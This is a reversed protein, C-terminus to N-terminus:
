KRATRKAERVSRSRVPKGADAPPKAAPVPNSAPGFGAASLARQGSESLLLEVFARAPGPRASTQVVGAGQLIPAHLSDPLLVGGRDKVLPWAVVAADANGSEAFQLAQRVNEAYVFKPHLAADLAQRAAVGYPAHAPNAIAISRVEPRALDALSRWAGSKSWLGLRGRAYTRVTGVVLRSESELARVLDLNASLFVDYPAGGRIQQALQGSSGFVFRVQIGRESALQKLPAAVAALDSAAAALVSDAQDAACATSAFLFRCFWRRLM